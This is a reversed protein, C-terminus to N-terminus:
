GDKKVGIRSIKEFIDEGYRLEKATEYIIGYSIVSLMFYIITFLTMMSGGLSIFMRGYFTDFFDTSFELSNYAILGIILAPALLVLSLLSQYLFSVVYSALGYEFIKSRLMSFASTFADILEDYGERYLLFASFYWLGVMAYFVGLGISGALPVFMSLMTVIAIPVAALVTVIISAGFFRLYLVMNDKFNRFVHKEDFDLANTNRILLFYEISFGFALLGILSLVVFASGIKLIFDESYVIDANYQTILYYSILIMLCVPIILLKFMIKAFHPFILKLLNIFDQVFEGLKRERKFEFKIIEM